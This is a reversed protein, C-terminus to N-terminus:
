AATLVQDRGAGKARYLAADARALLSPADQDDPGLEAVGASCTVQIRRGGVRVPSSRLAALLREGALTAGEAPTHPLLAVFEEGGHRYLADAERFVGSGVRAFHRLVEDGAPHGYTDNIMKFHDIDFLVLSLPVRYRRARAVEGRVAADFARRNLLGTL